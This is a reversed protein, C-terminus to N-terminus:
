FQAMCHMSSEIPWVFCKKEQGAESSVKEIPSLLQEM